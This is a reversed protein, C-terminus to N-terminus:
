LIQIQQMNSRKDKETILKVEIIYDKKRQDPTESEFTRQLSTMNIKTDCLINHTINILPFNTCIKNIM